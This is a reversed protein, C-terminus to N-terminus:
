SITIAATFLLHDANSYADFSKCFLYLNFNADFFKYIAILLSNHYYFSNSNNYIKICM